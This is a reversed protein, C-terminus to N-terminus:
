CLRSCSSASLVLSSSSRKRPTTGVELARKSPEFSGPATLAPASDLRGGRSDFRCHGFAAGCPAKGSLWLRDLGNRLRRQGRGGRRALSRRGYLQAIFRRRITGGRAVTLRSPAEPLRM